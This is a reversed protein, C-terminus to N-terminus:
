NVNHYFLKDEFGQKTIAMNIMKLDDLTAMSKSVFKNGALNVFVKGNEGYITLDSINLIGAEKIIRNMTAPTLSNTTGIINDIRYKFSSGTHQSNLVANEAILDLQNEFVLLIFISINLITLVLYIMGTKFNISTTNFLKM